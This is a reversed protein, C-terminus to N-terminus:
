GPPWRLVAVILGLGVAVLTTAILLTRLSFRSPLWRLWPAACSAALLISAFWHPVAFILERLARVGHSSYWRLGLIGSLTPQAPSDVFPNLAKHGIEFRTGAYYDNPNYGNVITLHGYQSMVSYYAGKGSRWSIADYLSQSRVWLVIVLVCALGLFVSWAIRLKRFRM